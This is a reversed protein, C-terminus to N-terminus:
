LEFSVDLDNIDSNQRSTPNLNTLATSIKSNFDEFVRLASGNGDKVLYNRIFSSFQSMVREFESVRENGRNIVPTAPDTNIPQPMFFNPKPRPPPPKRLVVKSYKQSTLIKNMEMDRNKIPTPREPALTPFEGEYDNFIDFRNTSYSNLVEKRSLRKLTMIKRVSEEEQWKPCARKNSGNHSSDGCLLCKMECNGTCDVRACNLCRKKSRCGKATHGLRGCNVCQRVAPYYLNVPIHCYDLIIYEPIDSSFFGIKVSFTPNGAEPSSEGGVSSARSVFRKASIVPIDSVINLRIYEDDLEKPINRIVGFSYVFSEPIFPRLGLSELNMTAFNNANSASDFKIRYLTRGIEKILLIGNIKLGKIKQYLFLSNRVKQNEPDARSSDVLVLFDGTHNIPYLLNDTRNHESTNGHSNVAGRSVDTKDSNNNDISVNDTKGNSSSTSPVGMKAPPTDIIEGTLNRKGLTHASNLRGECFQEFDDQSTAVPTPSSIDDGMILFKRISVEPVFYEIM